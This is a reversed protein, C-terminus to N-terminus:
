FKDDIGDSLQQLSELLEKLNSPERFYAIMEDFTGKKIYHMMCLDYGKRVVRTIIRRQAADSADSEVAIMALNDTGPFDFSISYKQGFGVPKIHKPILDILYEMCKGVLMEKHAQVDKPVSAQEETSKEGDDAAQEFANKEPAQKEEAPVDKVPESKEDKVPVSPRSQSIDSRKEVKDAQKDIWIYMIVGAIILASGPLPLDSIKILGGGIFVCFALVYVAAFSVLRASLKKRPSRRFWKGM